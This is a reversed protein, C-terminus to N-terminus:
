VGLWHITVRIRVDIISYEGVIVVVRSTTPVVRWMPKIALRLWLWWEAQIDMVDVVVVAQKIIYLMM